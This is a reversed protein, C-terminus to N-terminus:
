LRSASFSFSSKMNSNERMDELYEMFRSDTREFFKGVPDHSSIASTEPGIFIPSDPQRKECTRRNHGSVGCLGCVKTGRFLNCDALGIVQCRVRKEKKQAPERFLNKCGSLGELPKPGVKTKKKRFKNMPCTRRDHKHPYQGKCCSCVM